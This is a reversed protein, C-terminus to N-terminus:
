NHYGKRHNAGLLPVEAVVDINLYHDYPQIPLRALKMNPPSVEGLEILRHKKLVELLRTRSGSGTTFGIDMTPIYTDGEATILPDNKLKQAIFPVGLGIQRRLERYAGGDDMGIYIRGDHSVSLGQIQMTFPEVRRIRPAANVYFSEVQSWMVDNPGLFGIHIYTIHAWELPPVVVEDLEGLQEILQRLPKLQDAYDMGLPQLFQIPILWGSSYNEWSAWYDPLDASSSAFTDWDRERQELYTSALEAAPM